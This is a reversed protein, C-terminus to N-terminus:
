LVLWGLVAIVVLVVVLVLFWGHLRDLASRPPPPIPVWEEGDWQHRGDPSTPGTSM